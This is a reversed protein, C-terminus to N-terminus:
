YSVNAMPHNSGTVLSIDGAGAANVIPGYTNGAAISFNPANGAAVCRLIFARSNTGAYFGATTGRSAHCGDCVANSVSFGVSM